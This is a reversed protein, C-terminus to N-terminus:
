YYAVLLYIYPDKHETEGAGLGLHVGLSLLEQVMPYQTLATAERLSFQGAGHTSRVQLIGGPCRTVVPHPGFARPLARYSNM